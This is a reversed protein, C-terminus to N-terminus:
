SLAGSFHKLIQCVKPIRSGMGHLYNKENKMENISSLKKGIQIGPCENPSFNLLMLLHFSFRFLGHPNEYYLFIAFKSANRQRILNLM